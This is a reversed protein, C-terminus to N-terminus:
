PLANLIASITNSNSLCKQELLGSIGIIIRSIEYDCKFNDQLLVIKSLISDISVSNLVVNGYFHVALMILQLYVSSYIYKNASNAGFRSFGNSSISQEVVEQEMQMWLLVTNVIEIV